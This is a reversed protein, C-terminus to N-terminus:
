KSKPNKVPLFGNNFVLNFIEGSDEVVKVVKTLRFQPLMRLAAKPFESYHGNYIVHGVQLLGLLAVGIRGHIYARNKPDKYYEEEPLACIERVLNLTPKVSCVPIRKVTQIPNSFDDKGGFEGFYHRFYAGARNLVSRSDGRLPSGQCIVYVYQQKESDYCPMGFLLKEVDFESHEIIRHQFYSLYSNM